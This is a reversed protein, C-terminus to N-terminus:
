APRALMYDPRIGRTRWYAVLGLEECLRLFRPDARMVAAPPTFLCQAFQMRYDNVGESARDAAVLKARWVLYKDTIEFADDTKGLACLIMIATDINSPAKRAVELFATRADDMAKPSRTELAAVATRWRTFSEHARISAPAGDLMAIAARPRNTLAFLMLRFFFGFDYLPWQRRVRDIANDSATVNGFIWLKMARAVLHPRSLPALALIRENWSWSERTFGTGQLLTMLEGMAPINSNEFALISRLTRDSGALDLMPARLIFMATIANPELPNIEFARNIAYEAQQVIRDSGDLPAESAKKSRFYALLGWAKASRPNLRVAQQYLGIIDPGLPGGIHADNFSGKRLAEDGHAMFAEFIPDSQPRFAAWLGIGGAIAATAAGGWALTRRSFGFNRGQPVADFQEPANQEAQGDTTLRYGTRPITEIGVQGLAVEELIRRARAVARNLSDDGVTVGGWCQEFLTDRTVVSGRADLLLLMVQFILPEVYAQGAPGSVVRRSPSIELPGLQFDPQLALERLKLM